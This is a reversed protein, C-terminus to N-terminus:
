IYFQLMKRQLNQLIMQAWLVIIMFKQSLGVPFVIYTTLLLNLFALLSMVQILFIDIDSM